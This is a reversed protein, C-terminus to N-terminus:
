NGELQEDIKLCTDHSLFIRGCNQCEEVLCDKVIVRKSEDDEPNVCFDKIKEISSSFCESCSWNDINNNFSEVMLEATETSLLEKNYKDNKM